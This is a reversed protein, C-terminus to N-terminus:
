PVVFATCPITDARLAHGDTAGDDTWWFPRQGNTCQSVPAFAIGENGINPM